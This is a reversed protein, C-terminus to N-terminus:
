PKPEEDLLKNFDNLAALVGEDYADPSFVELHDIISVRSHVGSLLASAAWMYGRAFMEGDWYAKAAALKAKLWKRM